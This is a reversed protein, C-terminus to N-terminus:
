IPAPAFTKPSTTIPLSTTIPAFATTILLMTEFVATAPTGALTMFLPMLILSKTHIMTTRFHRAELKPFESQSCSARAPCSPAAAEPAGGITACCPAPAPIWRDHPDRAASATSGGVMDPITNLCDSSCVQPIRLSLEGVRTRIAKGTFGNAYGARDDTREGPTARLFASRELGMAENLLTQMADAMHGLGHESLLELVSEIANPQEEHHAM